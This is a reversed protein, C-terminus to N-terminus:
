SDRKKIAVAVYIRYPEDLMHHPFKRILKSRESALISNREELNLVAFYSLSSLNELHRELTVQRTWQLERTTILFSSSENEITAAAGRTMDFAHYHPLRKRLRDEQDRVWRVNTDPVNWWVALAGGIRLVREAESVSRQPDTWHWAQAYTIFDATNERFPLSNGDARVLPIGPQHEHLQAAMGEGPEVAIVHACRNVMLQTAIGTGAGVDLVVSGRLPRQAIAEIADFLEEPYSPRVAAYLAAVSNFSTAFSVQPLNPM